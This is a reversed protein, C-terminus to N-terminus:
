LKETGERRDPPTLELHVSKYAQDTHICVLVGLRDIQGDTANIQRQLLEKAMPTKADTLQKHLALMREVLALM